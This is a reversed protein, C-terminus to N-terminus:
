NTAAYSATSTSRHQNTSINWKAREKVTISLHLVLGGSTTSSHYSV